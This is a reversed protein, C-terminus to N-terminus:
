YTKTIRATKFAFGTSLAGRPVLEVESEIGLERYFAENVRGKLVELDKIGVQYEMKVKLRDLEGPRDIIVLYDDALGDTSAVIEEVDLPLVKKDGVKIIQSVRGRVPSMKPLTRGCPCPKYPFVKGVDGPRYRILPMTHGLLPTIVLEGEEGDPVPGGTEPNIVEIISRDAFPHMGDREECESAIIGMDMSGWWTTYPMGYKNQFKRKSSEAWPEGVGIALRLKTQRIDIGMEEARGFYALMFSPMYEIITAGVTIALNIEQDLNYRLISPM